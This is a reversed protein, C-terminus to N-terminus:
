FFLINTEHYQHNKESFYTAYNEFTSKKKNLIM